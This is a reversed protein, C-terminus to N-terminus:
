SDRRRRGVSDTHDRTTPPTIPRHAPRRVFAIATVRSYASLTILVLFAPVCSADSDRSEIRSQGVIPEADYLWELNLNVIYIPRDDKIRRFNILVAFPIREFLRHCVKM